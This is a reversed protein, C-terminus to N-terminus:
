VSGQIRNIAALLHNRTQDVHTRLSGLDDGHPDGLNPPFPSPHPGYQEQGAPREQMGFTPTEDLERMIAEAEPANPVHQVVLADRPPSRSHSVALEPM